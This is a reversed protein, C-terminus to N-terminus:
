AIARLGKEAAYALCEQWSRVSASTTPAHLSTAASANALALCQPLPWDEHIGFLMGAYFADGAGVASIIEDQPVNVSPAHIAEGTVSVAVAGMPHHIVALERVGMNLLSRAASEALQWDFRGQKLVPLGTVIEAESDNIVFYDLLPLCPRAARRQTEAPVPCLELCTKFGRVRAEQLVMRWGDSEDMSSSLGPSGLYFIKAGDDPPLLHPASLTNNAGPQYFFTRKGTAASTMVHTYDTNVGPVRRIGSVDLGYGAAKELFVDGYADEGVVGIMSVPFPAGLRILGTAANHPPGGPAWICQRIFAIQEEQPWAEIINNVDLVATGACIIGSRAM